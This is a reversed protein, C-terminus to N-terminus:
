GGASVAHGEAVGRAAVEGEVGDCTGQVGEAAFLVAHHRYVPLGRAAFAQRELCRCGWLWGAAEEAADAAALAWCCDPDEQLPVSPMWHHIQDVVALRVM